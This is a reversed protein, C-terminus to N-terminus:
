FSYFLNKHNPFSVFLHCKTNLKDQVLEIDQLKINNIGFMTKRQHTAQYQKHWVYNKKPTYSSQLSSQEFVQFHTHFGRHNAIVGPKYNAVKTTTIKQSVLIQMTLGLTHLETNHKHFLKRETGGITKSKEERRNWGSL